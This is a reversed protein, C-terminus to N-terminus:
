QHLKYRPAVYLMLGKRGQSCMGKCEGFKTRRDHIIKRPMKM